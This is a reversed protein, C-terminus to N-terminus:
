IFILGYFRISNLSCFSLLSPVEGTDIVHKKNPFARNDSFPRSMHAQTDKYKNTEHTNTNTIIHTQRATHTHAVCVCWCHLKPVLSTENDDQVIRDELTSLASPCQGIDCDHYARMDHSNGSLGGHVFMFLRSPDVIALFSFLYQKHHSTFRGKFQLAGM